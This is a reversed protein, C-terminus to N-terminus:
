RRKGGAASVSMCLGVSLCSTILSSGGQSFFPLTLGIVPLVGLVMGINLAAQFFLM